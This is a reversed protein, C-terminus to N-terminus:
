KDDEDGDRGWPRGEAVHRGFEEITSEPLESGAARAEEDLAARGEAPTTHSARRLARRYAAEVAAQLQVSIDREFEAM